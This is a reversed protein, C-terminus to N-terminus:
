RKARATYQKGARVTVNKRKAFDRVRVKGRTVKTLTSSCRDEVLYRTGVVTAASHKGKTRFKGSGDGWLRRKRKKKAATVARGAKACRLAEVLTLTTLPKAGKGQSLRFVGGFFDMRQGGAAVITVRGKTTDVVSGVPIQKGEDLVEFRNSGRVKVKVTGSKPLANVEKGAEPPPLEQRSSSSVAPPPLDDNATVTCTPQAGAQAVVVGAATCDGGISVTYGAVPDVSVDYTHGAEVPYVAGSPSGPQPSGVVDVGAERVHVNLNGPALAGADDNIVTTQVALSIPPAFGRVVVVQNFGGYTSFLYDGSLPDLFAGEPNVLGSVFVRRSAMIPDGSADVDYVAVNDAGYESVLLSPATLLPSGPAVYVVGEPGGSLTSNPLHTVATVDFTGNGDPVISADYWQGSPYTALKLSGAGPLGAPVFQLAGLSTAVGLPSMAIVRDTTTSGQKTQGIENMPYRAVFLVDGPGYAVGGDNNAADAYRTATGSFGTIHGRADRVLGIEYLAGTPQNAAGGILLRDTTGAKLTLGGFSTPVGPPAGLNHVSYRQDFPAAVTQGAAPAAGVLAVYVALALTRIIRV